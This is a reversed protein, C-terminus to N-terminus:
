RYCCTVSRASTQSQKEMLTGCVELIKGLLTGLVQVLTCYRDLIAEPVTGIPLVTQAEM